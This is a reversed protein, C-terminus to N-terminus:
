YVKNKKVKSIKETKECNKGSKSYKITLDLMVIFLTNKKKIRVYHCIFPKKQKELMLVNFFTYETIRLEIM